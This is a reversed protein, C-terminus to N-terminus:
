FTLFTTGCEENHLILNDAILLNIKTLIRRFNFYFLIDSVTSMKKSLIELNYKLTSELVM